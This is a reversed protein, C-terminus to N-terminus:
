RGPTASLEVPSLERLRPVLRDWDADDGQWYTERPEPVGMETVHVGEALEAITEDAPVGVEPSRVWM